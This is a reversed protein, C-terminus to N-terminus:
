RTRRVAATAGARRAATNVGASGKPLRDRHTTGAEVGVFGAFLEVRLADQVDLVAENEVTL